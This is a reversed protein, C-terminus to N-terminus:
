PPFRHQGVQQNHFVISSQVAQEGLVKGLFILDRARHVELVRLGFQALSQRLHNQEVEIQGVAITELEHFLQAAVGGYGHQHHGRPAFDLLPHLTQIRPGVIIQDLGEREIFEVSSDLGQQPATGSSFALNQVQAVGLEIGRAQGQGHFALVNLEGFM